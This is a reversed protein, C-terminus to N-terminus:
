TRNSNIVANIVEMPIGFKQAFIYKSAKGQVYAFMGKDTAEKNIGRIIEYAKNDKCGILEMVDTATIYTVEAACLVGPASTLNRM